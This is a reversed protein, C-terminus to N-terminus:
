NCMKLKIEEARKLIYKDVEGDLETYLRIMEEFSYLMDDINRVPFYTSYEIETDSLEIRIM